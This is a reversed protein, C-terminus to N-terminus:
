DPASPPPPTRAGPRDPPVTAPDGRNGSPATATPRSGTPAAPRTRCPTTSLHARPTPSPTGSGPATTFGYATAAATAATPTTPPSHPTTTATRPLSGPDTNRVRADRTRGTPARADLRRRSILNPPAAAAVTTTHSTVPHGTPANSTPVSTSVLLYKKPPPFTAASRISRNSPRSCHTRCRDSLMADPDIGTCVITRDASCAGSAM